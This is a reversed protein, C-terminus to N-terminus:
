VSFPKSRLVKEKLCVGARSKQKKVQELGPLLASSIFVVRSVRASKQKETFSQYLMCDFHNVICVQVALFGGLCVPSLWPLM